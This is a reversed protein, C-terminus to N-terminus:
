VNCICGKCDPLEYRADALWPQEGQAYKTLPLDYPLTLTSGHLTVDQEATFLVGMEYSRIM